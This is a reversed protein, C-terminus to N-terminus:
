AGRRPRDAGTEDLFACVRFSPTRTSQTAKALGSRRSFVPARRPARFCFRSRTEKGEVRPLVGRSKQKGWWWLQLDSTTIVIWDYTSSELDACWWQCLVTYAHALPFPVCRHLEIWAVPLPGARAWAQEFGALVLLHAHLVLSPFHYLHLPLSLSLPRVFSPHSNAM